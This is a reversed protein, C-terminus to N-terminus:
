LEEADTREEAYGLLNVGRQAHRGGDGKHQRQGGDDGPQYLFVHEVGEAQLIQLGDGKDEDDGRQHLQDLNNQLLYRGGEILGKADEQGQDGGVAGHETDGDEADLFVEVQQLRHDIGERRGDAETQRQRYEGAHALLELQSLNGLAHLAHGDDHEGGAEEGQGEHAERTDVAAQLHEESEILDQELEM